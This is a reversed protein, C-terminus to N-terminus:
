NNNENDKPNSMEKLPKLENECWYKIIEKPDKM